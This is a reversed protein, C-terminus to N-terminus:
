ILFRVLSMLKKKRNIEQPYFQVHTRSAYPNQNQQILISTNKSSKITSGDRRKVKKKCTTIVSQYVKGLKIKSKERFKISGISVVSKMGATGSKKSSKNLIQICKLFIAGSNDCSYLYYDYDDNRVIMLYIMKIMVIMMYMMKIMVIM